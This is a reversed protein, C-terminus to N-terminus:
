GKQAEAASEVGRIILDLMHTGGARSAPRGDRDPVLKSFSTAPHHWCSNCGDTAYIMGSSPVWAMLRIRDSDRAAHGDTQYRDPDAIWVAPADDHRAAVMQRISDMDFQLLRHASESLEVDRM